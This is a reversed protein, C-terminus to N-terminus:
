PTDGEQPVRISGDPELRLALDVRSRDTGDLVRRVNLRDSREYFELADARTAGGRIKRDILRDRLLQPDADIFVNSSSYRLLPTWRPDDLLLWNGEVVVLRATVPRADPVVDHVTRDYVPWRVDETLGAELHRALGETDFTDPSGKYRALPVEGGDSAVLTRELHEQPHHFGDIGIADLDIGHHRARRVLLETLVSKGTAPPAALFVYTRPAGGAARLVRELLPVLVDEILPLDMTVELPLGNVVMTEVGARGTVAGAVPSPGAAGM